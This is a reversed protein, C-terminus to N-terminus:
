QEAEGDDLELDGGHHLERGVDDGAAAVEVLAGRGDHRQESRAAYEHVLIEARLDHEPRLHAAVLALEKAHPGCWLHELALQRCGLAVTRM